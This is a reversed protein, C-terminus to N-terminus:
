QGHVAKPLNCTKYQNMRLSHGRHTHGLGEPQGMEERQGVGELQEVGEPQEVGERQGVGEPQEM